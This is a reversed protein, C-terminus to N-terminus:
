NMQSVDPLQLPGRLLYLEVGNDDLAAITYPEWATLCVIWAGWRGNAPSTQTVGNQTVSISKVGLSHRGNIVIAPSNDPPQDRFSGGSIQIPQDDLDKISDPNALPNHSWGSGSWHKLPVWNEVERRFIGRTVAPTFAGDEDKSYRLFLVAGFQPSKWMAIPLVSEYSLQSQVEPLGEDFVKLGNVVMNASNFLSEDDSTM